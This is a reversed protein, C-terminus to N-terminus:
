KLGDFEIVRVRRPPEEFTVAEISRLYVNFKTLAMGEWVEPLEDGRIRVVIEQTRQDFTVADSEISEPLMM